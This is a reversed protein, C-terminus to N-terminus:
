GRTARRTAGCCVASRVELEALVGPIMKNYKSEGWIELRSDIGLRSYVQSFMEESRNCLSKWLRLNEEDGAQLKVTEEHARRNFEPENDYRM